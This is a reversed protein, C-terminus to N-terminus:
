RSEQCGMQSENSSFAARSTGTLSETKEETEQRQETEECGPSGRYRSRGIEERSEDGESIGGGATETKAQGTEKPRRAFAKRTTPDKEKFEEAEYNDKEERRLNISSHSNSNIIFRASTVSKKPAKIGILGRVSKL